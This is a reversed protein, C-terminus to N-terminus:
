SGESATNLSVILNGHHDISFEDRPGIIATSEREEIVAPGSAHFGTPLSYRDYVTATTTGTDWFVLTRTGKVPEGAETDANAGLTADPGSVSIRWTLAELTTPELPVGYVRRCEENFAELIRPGSGRDFPGVGIPTTLVHSQGVWRLDASRLSTIEAPAVGAREVAERASAELETLMAEIAPWDASDDIRTIKSQAVDVAPPAVLLGTASLVGARAPLIVTSINLKRAVAVGHLPGGGGSGLMTTRAPDQGHEALHVRIAGAMTENVMEIVALAMEIATKGITSGLRTFADRALEADLKMTGGAFTDPDLYGLMLNADTVTPHVGGLGYCAPGPKSEASEPGVKLLGLSDLSAISGGGAATTSM